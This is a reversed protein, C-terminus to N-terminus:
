QHTLLLEVTKSKLNDTSALMIPTEDNNNTLNADVGKEILLKAKRYTDKAAEQDFNIDHACVKHLLSDGNQDVRNLELKDLQLITNLVSFSQEAALDAPTKEKGYYISPTYMDADDELLQTLFDLSTQSPRNLRRLFEFLLTTGNKSVLEFDPAEVERLKHYLQLNQQHVVTHYFATEENKDPINCGAGNELLIDILLSKNASIAIILPTKKVIDMADVDLGEDIMLKLYAAAIEPKIRNNAAIQHLYTEEANNVWTTDCGANIMIKIIFPSAGIDLAYALLTQSNVSDNINKLASLFQNFFYISTEEEELNLLIKQLLTNEFTDYEFLDTEILKRDVFIQIIDFEKHQILNAFLATSDFASLYDPINSEEKLIEKAQEFNCNQIAALLVSHDPMKMILTFGNILFQAKRTFSVFLTQVSKM